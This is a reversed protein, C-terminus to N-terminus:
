KKEQKQKTLYDGLEHFKNMARRHTGLKKRCLKRAKKDKIAVGSRILEMARKEYINFGAVERIVSRVAASRKSVKGKLTVPRTKWAMKAPRKVIFGKNRGVFKGSRGNTETMTIREYTNIKLECQDVPKKNELFM